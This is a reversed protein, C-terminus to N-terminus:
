KLIFNVEITAVVDVPQGDKTGPDFRWQEVARIAQTDLDPDLSRVIAIDSAGGLTRVTVKLVVTGSVKRDKASETYQPEIKYIVRPPKDYNKPANDQALTLLPIACALAVLSLAALIASLLTARRRPANPNLLHKMREELSGRGNGAMAPQLSSEAAFEYITQAYEIRDMGTDLVLDDCAWERERRLERLAMWAFPQLWCFAVALSALLDIFVDHRRGHAREHELVQRLRDVPWTQADVPLLIRSQFLGYAVPGSIEDSYRVSGSGRARRWIRYAAHRRVLFWVGLTAAVAWYLPLGTATASLAKSAASGVSAHLTIGPLTAAPLLGLLPLSILYLAWVQFREAASLRPFLRLVGWIAAGLLAGKWWVAWTM